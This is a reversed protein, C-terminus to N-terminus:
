IIMGHEMGAVNPVIAAVGAPIVSVGAPVTIIGHYGGDMGAVFLKPVIIGVGVPNVIVIAQEAPQNLGLDTNAVLM